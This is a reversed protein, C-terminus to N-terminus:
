KGPQNYYGTRTRLKLGPRDIKMELDHYENPKHAPPPDFTITYFASADAVCRNIQATMNNDPGLVLGGSQEALVGLTLNAPAADNPKTVGKLFMEFYDNRVYNGLTVSYLTIRAQRLRTSLEVISAFVQEEIKPPLIGGMAQVDFLPWGPGGWILLKRGPKQAEAQAIRDLLQISQLFSDWGDAGERATRRLIRDMSELEAAEVKGDMSPRPQASVGDYVLSFVSVPEALHGDNQLLFKEMEQTFFTVDRYSFNLADVLLIVEVPSNAAQPTGHFPHFSLIPTPHHNDLLTFDALDLGSVPHGRKDTVVVDLKIRGEKKEAGVSTRGASQATIPSSPSAQQATLGAGDPPQQPLGLRPFGLCFMLVISQCVRM